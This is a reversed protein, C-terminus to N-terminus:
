ETDLEKAQEGKQEPSNAAKRKAWDAKAAASIKARTEASRKKGKQAASMKARTEATAPEGKTAASIKARTEATPPKRRKRNSMGM